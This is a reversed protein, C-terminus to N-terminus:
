GFELGGRAPSETEVQSWSCGRCFRGVMLVTVYECAPSGGNDSLSSAILGQLSRLTSRLSENLKRQHDLEDILVKTSGSDHFKTLTDIRSQLQAILAKNKERASRQAKRDQERKRARDEPTKRSKTSRPTEMTNRVTTSM